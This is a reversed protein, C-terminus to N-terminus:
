FILEVTSTLPKRWWIRLSIKRVSMVNSLVPKMAMHNLRTLLLMLTSSSTAAEGATKEAAEVAEPPVNQFALLFIDM